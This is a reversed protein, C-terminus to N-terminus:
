NTKSAFADVYKAFRLSLERERRMPMRRHPPREKVSAFDNTPRDLFCDFRSLADIENEYHRRALSAITTQVIFM